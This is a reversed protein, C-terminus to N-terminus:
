RADRARDVGAAIGSCNVAITEFVRNAILRQGLDNPHIGDSHVTWDAQGQAEWIDALLCGQAQALDRIVGNFVKTAAVSGRDFPPWMDYDRIYYVTTLVTVPDCARQVETVIHTLDRRFDEPAMGARMDNLHRM